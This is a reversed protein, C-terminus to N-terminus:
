VKLKSGNQMGMYFNNGSTSGLAGFMINYKNLSSSSWMGLLQITIPANPLLDDIYHTHVCDVYCYRLSTRVHIAQCM